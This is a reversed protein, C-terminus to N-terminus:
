RSSTSAAVCSSLQSSSTSPARSRSGGRIAIARRSMSPQSSAQLLQVAALARVAGVRRRAHLGFDRVGTLEWGDEGLEALIGVEDLATARFTRQEIGEAGLEAVSPARQVDDGLLEAAFREVPGFAEAAPEGSAALHDHLEALLDDARDDPLGADRLRGALDALYPDSPTM